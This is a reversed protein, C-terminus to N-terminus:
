FTISLTGNLIVLTGGNLITKSADLAAGGIFTGSTAATWLGFYTVATWDEGAPGYVVDLSNTVVQTAPANFAIIKRAYGLKSLESAGTKGPNATHLSIYTAGAIADALAANGRTDNVVLTGM